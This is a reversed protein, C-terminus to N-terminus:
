RPAPAPEYFHLIAAGDAVNLADSIDLSGDTSAEALRRATEQLDATDLEYLSLYERAPLHDTDVQVASLKFRRGGVVGPVREVVQPIHVEDYWRNFEDEDEASRPQVYAVLLAKPM